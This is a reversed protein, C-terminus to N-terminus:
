AKEGAAVRATVLLQGMHRMGHEAGHTLCGIMTSPVKKRGVYRVEALKSADVTKLEALCRETQAKLNDLLAQREDGVMPETEHKAAAFQAETLGEGRAYTFLRDLVGPIHRMHYTVSAVGAPRANWGELSLGEVKTPVEDRLQLIMHAVPQLMAPVGEVPGRQWWEPQPAAM